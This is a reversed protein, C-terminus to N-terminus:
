TRKLDRVVFRAPLLATVLDREIPWPEGTIHCALLEAALPASVAGHSGLGALTYLGPLYDASAYSTWPHGHRLEGFHAVFADHQPLPGIAPLHDPSVCRVAARGTLADHSVGETLGPLANELLALNYAHDAARIDTADGTDFTAGVSHRGQIVPTISGGYSLVSRLAGSRLTPSMFTMQGRRARLPLWSAQPLARVGLANALVVVDAQITVQGARDFLRWVGHEHTLSSIETDFRTDSKRSLAACLTAPELWGSQTFYLGGTHLTIGAIDSAETADVQKLAPASLPGHAVIADQRATEDPTTALQLLGCQSLHFPENMTDFMNLAFRWAEAYFRGDFADGATLRPMIGATPNGSTERALNDCRDIITTNWGRRQL